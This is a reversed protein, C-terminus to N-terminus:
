EAARPQAGPRRERRLLAREDPGAGGWVGAREDAQVAWELCPVRVPCARCVAKAAALSGGRGPFWLGSDRGKCSAGPLDPLVLGGPPSPLRGPDVARSPGTLGPGRAPAAALSGAGEGSV